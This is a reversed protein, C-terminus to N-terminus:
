KFLLCRQDLDDKMYYGIMKQMVIINYSKNNM